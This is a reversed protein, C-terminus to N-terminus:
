ADPDLQLRFTNVIGNAIDAPQDDGGSQYWTQTWNLAGLMALRFQRRNVEVPLPLSNVLERFIAEYGERQELLTSKVNGDFTSPFQPTIVQSFPSPGLLVELHARCAAAIRCWPTQVSNEIAAKVAQTVQDVGRAHTELLIEEKSAFHYYLSGSLIGVAGAIDRISTAAYGRTAFLGAAAELLEDRRTNGEGSVAKQKATSTPIHARLTIEM